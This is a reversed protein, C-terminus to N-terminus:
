RGGEMVNARKQKHKALQEKIEALSKKGFNPARLLEWDSKGVLDGVTRVGENRLGQEARVSLELETVPTEDYLDALGPRAFNRAGFMPAGPPGLVEEIERLAERASLVLATLSNQVSRLRYKDDATV